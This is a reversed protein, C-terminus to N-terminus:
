RLDETLESNKSIDMTTVYWMKNNHIIAECNIRKKEKETKVGNVFRLLNELDIKADVYLNRRIEWVYSTDKLNNFQRKDLYIGTYHGLM